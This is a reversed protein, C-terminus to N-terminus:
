AVNRHPVALNRALTASYEALPVEIPVPSERLQM